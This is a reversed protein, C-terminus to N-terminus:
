LSKPKPAYIWGIVKALDMVILNEKGAVWLQQGIVRPKGEIIRAEDTFVIVERDKKATRLKEPQHFNWRLSRGDASQIKYIMKM